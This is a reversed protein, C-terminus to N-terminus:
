SMLVLPGLGDRRDARPRGRAPCLRRHGRRGGAPRRADAGLNAVVLVRDRLSSGNTLAVVDGAYGEVWALSGTGLSLERRPPSCRATSSSRRAPWARRATWPTTPASTPSRCGRAPARASATALPRAASWPIPVRCGDRGTEAAPPALAPRTRASSTRCTPRTRCASSRARTSTPAAPCRSCSRRRRAPAACASRATPSRTADGIGNCGRRRGTRLRAAVRPPRRRPEVAGVHTPAGVADTPACRRPRHRRAPGRRDWRATSSTSTSRRTCRTRASTARRRARAARGLGRRVLIRDRTGYSTSSRRAVRPLDRPRRGPGLIPPAAHRSARRRSPGHAHADHEDRGLMTTRATWDPLGPEKVLGHAVDVRFGDVGRDLWFRLISEFEARVEPNSGTSTPSSPTSSTCTGSAPRATPRPSARGRPAASSPSGTTRRCSATRARATASCTASASASGPRPPSPPRSGSTSPRLLPEAGHRRHGQPRARPGRRHLADVDDLTGFCRTSTATTPSTTAPTPRRRPTSPRSGSPTSASTARPADLRRTIGPLDGIGDGDSDAFSRPYIQYIVASRWWAADPRDAAHM